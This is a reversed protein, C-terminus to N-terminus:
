IVIYEVVDDTEQIAITRGNAFHFDVRCGRPTSQMSYDRLVQGIVGAIQGLAIHPYAWQEDPVAWPLPADVNSRWLVVGADLCLRHWVGAFQGFVVNAASVLEGGSVFQECIFADCLSGALQPAVGVIDLQSMAQITM